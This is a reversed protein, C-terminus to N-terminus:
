RARVVEFRDPPSTAKAHAFDEAVVRARYSGPKLARGNVTGDFPLSNKGEQATVQSLSAAKKWATCRLRRPVSGSAPKCRRGSRKGRVQREFVVTARAFESLKFTLRRSAATAVPAAPLVVRAPVSLRTVEPLGPLDAPLVGLAGVTDRYFVDGLATDEPSFNEARSVFAVRANNAALAAGFSYNDGAAGFVGSARSVLTTRGAAVDRIFVDIDDPGDLSDADLNDAFSDFAVYRGNPSISPDQSTGAGAAGAPGSARSVLVTTNATVDRRYVSKGGPPAAPDLQQWASFAVYRGDDSVNPDYAGFRNSAAVSGATGTAQSVLVTHNAAVDRLFVDSRANGDGAVLNSARSWYAVFRGDPSMHANRSPGDGVAGAGEGRSALTWAGSGFSYVYVDEVGNADEPVHADKSTYAVKDGDDSVACNAGTFDEDQDQETGTANGPVYRTTDAVVDRVVMSGNWFCVFRGDRSIQPDAGSMPTGDPGNARSALELDGTQADKVYVRGSGPAGGPWNGALTFFAVYRGDASIAPRRFSQDNGAPGAAGERSVLVTDYDAGAGGPVGLAAAAMAAALLSRRRM